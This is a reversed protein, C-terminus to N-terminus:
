KEQQTPFVYPLWRDRTFYAGAAVAAVVALATLPRVIAHLRM